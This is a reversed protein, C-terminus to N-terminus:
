SWKSVVHACLDRLECNSERVGCETVEELLRKAEPCTEGERCHRHRRATVRDDTTSWRSVFRVARANPHQSNLRSPSWRIGGDGPYSERHDVENFGIPLPVGSPYAACAGDPRLHVCSSCQALILDEAKGIIRDGLTSKRTRRAWLVGRAEPGFGMAERTPGDLVPTPGAGCDYEYRDEPDEELPHLTGVVRGTWQFGRDGPYPARHDVVNDVIHAPIGEPFARCSGDELEHACRACQPNVLPNSWDATVRWLTDALM